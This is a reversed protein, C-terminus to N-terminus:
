QLWAHFACCYVKLSVFLQNARYMLCVVVGMLHRAWSTYFSVSLLLFSASLEWNGHVVPAEVAAAARAPTTPRATM